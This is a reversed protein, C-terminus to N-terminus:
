TVDSDIPLSSNWVDHAVKWSGDVQCEWVVVYRTTDSMITDGAAMTMHWRGHSVAWGDAVRVEDVSIEIDQITVAEFMGRAWGEIAETGVLAPHNPPILVADPTLFAMTRAIEGSRFAEGWEKTARTIEAAAQDM